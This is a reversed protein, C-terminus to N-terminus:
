VRIYVFTIRNRVNAGMLESGLLEQSAGRVGGAMSTGRALVSDLTSTVCHPSQDQRTVSALDRWPEM